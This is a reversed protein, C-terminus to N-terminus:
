AATDGQLQQSSNDQLETAGTIGDTDGQVQGGNRGHGGHHGGSGKGRQMGDPANQMGGSMDGNMNGNADDNIGGRLGGGGFSGRMGGSLTSYLNDTLTISESYSGATLTYAEGQVMDQTSVYVVAYNLGPTVEAIVDGSSNTLKV